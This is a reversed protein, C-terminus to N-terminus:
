ITVKIQFKIKGDPLVESKEMAPEGSFFENDEELAKCYKVVSNYSVAEGTLLLERDPMTAVDTLWAGDVTDCGLHVMTAYIPWSNKSLENLLNAKRKMDDNIGDVRQKSNWAEELLLFERQQSDVEENVSYLKWEWWSWAMLSVICSLLLICAGLRQWQWGQLRKDELFFILGQSHLGATAGYVALMLDNALEGNVVHEPIHCKVDGLTVTNLDSQFIKRGANTVVRTVNIDGRKLVAVMDLIEKKSVAGLLNEERCYAKLMDGTFPANAEIDWGAEAFLDDESLDPFEHHYYFVEEERICLIVNDATIGDKNLCNALAEIGESLEIGDNTDCKIEGASMLTFEENHLQVYAYSIGNCGLYIGLSSNNEERFYRFINSVGDINGISLLTNTM